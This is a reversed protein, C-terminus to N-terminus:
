LRAAEAAASPGALLAVQLYVLVPELAPLDEAGSERIHRVVVDDVAAVV